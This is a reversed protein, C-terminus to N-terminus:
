NELYHTFTTKSLNVPSYLLLVSKFKKNQPLIDKLDITLIFNTKIENSMGMATQIQCVLVVLKQIKDSM